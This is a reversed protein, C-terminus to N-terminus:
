PNCLNEITVFFRFDNPSLNHHRCAQLLLTDWYPRNNLRVGLKMSGQLMQTLLLGWLHQGRIIVINHGVVQLAGMGGRVRTCPKVKSRTVLLTALTNRTGSSFGEDTGHILSALGPVKHPRNIHVMQRRTWVSEYTCSTDNGHMVSLYSHLPGRIIVVSLPGRSDLLLMPLKSCLGSSNMDRNRLPRETM